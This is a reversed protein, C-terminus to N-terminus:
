GETSVDQEEQYDYYLEDKVMLYKTTKTPDGPTPTPIAKTLVRTGYKLPKGSSEFAAGSAKLLHVIDLTQFVFYGPISPHPM